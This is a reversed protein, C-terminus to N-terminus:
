QMVSAKGYEGIEPSKEQHLEREREDTNLFPRRLYDWLYSSGVQSALGGMKIARRARGSTLNKQDAM